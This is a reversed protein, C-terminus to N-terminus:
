LFLGGTLTWTVLTTGRAEVLSMLWESCKDTDIVPALHTYADVVGCTPDLGQEAIIAADRRFGRAGSERIKRMKALLGEDEDVKKTFLFDAQRMVVGVAKALEEHAAIDAWVEYAIICWWKSRELSVVNTHQGCVAPLYEWLAGAIQSTLRQSTSYSAWEASLITVRYSHDLLTWANAPGSIGGGVILIHASTLSPPRLPTAHATLSHHLHLTPKSSTPSFS